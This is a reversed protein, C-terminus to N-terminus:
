HHGYNKVFLNIGPINININGWKELYGINKM